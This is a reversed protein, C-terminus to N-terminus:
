RSLAILSDRRILKGSFTKPPS